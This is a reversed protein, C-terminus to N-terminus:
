KRNRQRQDKMRNRMAKKRNRAAIEEEMKEKREKSLEAETVTYTPKPAILSYVIAFITMIVLFIGVGVVIQLGEDNPFEPFNALLLEFVPASAVYAVGAAILIVLIGIIPLLAKTWNTGQKKKIGESYDTNRSM